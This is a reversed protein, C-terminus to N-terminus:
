RITYGKNIYNDLAFVLAISFWLWNANYIAGSFLHKVFSQFFIVTIWSFEPYLRIITFSKRFSFYLLIIIPVFGFIGTAQLIELLFNHPYYGSFGDVALKDGFFPAFQFQSFSNQWMALRIASSSNQDIDSPINTFREFLRSGLNDSLYVLVGVFIILLGIGYVFKKLNFRTFLLFGFPLLLAILSGRSAGLFFPIISLLVTFCAIIKIFLSTKNYVLFTLLVGILLTSSYSLTLPSIVDEGVSSSTLRGVQGLFQWYFLLCFLAFILGSFLIAFLISDFYCRNFPISSITIFPIISFSIFYFLVDFISLYYISDNYFDFGIRVLFLFSFVLFIKQYQVIKFTNFNLFFLVIQLGVIFIRLPVTIQRTFTLYGANIAILLIAYYGLFTFVCIQFILISNITSKRLGM